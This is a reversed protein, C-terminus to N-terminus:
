KIERNLVESWMRAPVTERYMAKLISLANSQIDYNFMMKVALPHSVISNHEHETKSLEMLTEEKLKAEYVVANGGKAIVNGLDLQSLSVVENERQEVNINLDVSDWKM